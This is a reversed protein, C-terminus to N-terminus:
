KGFQIVYKINKKTNRNYITIKQSVRYYKANWKVEKLQPKENLHVLSHLYPQLTLHLSCLPLFSPLIKTSPWDHIIQFPMSFNSISQNCIFGFKQSMESLTTTCNPPTPRSTPPLHVPYLLWPLWCNWNIESHESNM